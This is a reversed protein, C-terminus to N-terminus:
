QKRVTWALTIQLSLNDDEYKALRLYRLEGGLALTPSVPVLYMASAMYAAGTVSSSASSGAASVSSTNISTGTALNIHFRESPAMAFVLLIPWADLTQHVAAGSAATRSISYVHTRGVEIGASLLHGPQRMVRVAGAMGNRELGPVAADFSSVNHVFGLSGFVTVTNPRVGAQAHLGAPLGALLACVLATRTM